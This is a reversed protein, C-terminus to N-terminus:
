EWRSQSTGSSPPEPSPRTGTAPAGDARQRHRRCGGTAHHLIGRRGMRDRQGRHRRSSRAGAVPAGLVRSQRKRRRRRAKRERGKGLVRRQYRLLSSSTAPVTPPTCM